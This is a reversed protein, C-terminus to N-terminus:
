AARAASAVSSARRVGAACTGCACAATQAALPWMSATPTGGLPMSTRSTAQPRTAAARRSRRLRLPLTLTGAPRTRLGSGASNGFQYGSANSAGPGRGAQPRSRSRGHRARAAAEGSLIRLPRANIETSWIRATRDAGGSVFYGGHGCAAVAWVPFAHGRYVALGRRLEPSWARVTADSSASLLLQADPTFDLAHVPAAHGFLQLM